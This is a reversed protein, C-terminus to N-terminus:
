GSNREMSQEFVEPCRLHGRKPIGDQGRRPLCNTLLHFGDLVNCADPIFDIGAKIWFAGDGSIVIHETKELDYTGDLYQWVTDWVTEASTGTPFTLYRKGILSFRDKGVQVRGEHVCVLRQDFAPVGKERHAVHDEDAEVYLVRAEKKVSPKETLDLKEPQLRRVINLVTQGSVSIGTDKEPGQGAKAYSKDVAEELLDAELLTDLRQHAKYGALRDALHAHAKLKKNKFLTREYRVEGFPSLVTKPERRVIVWGKRLSLNERLENDVWEMLRQQITCCIRNVGQRLAQQFGLMGKGDFIEMVADKVVEQFSFVISEDFIAQISSRVESYKTSTERLSPPIKKQKEWVM